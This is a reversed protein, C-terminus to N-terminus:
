NTEDPGDALDRAAQEAEEAAVGLWSDLQAGAAQFSGETVRLFVLVIFFIAMVVLLVSQFFRNM